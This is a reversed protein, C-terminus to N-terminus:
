GIPSAQEVRAGANDRLERTDLIATTELLDLAQEAAAYREADEIWDRAAAANPLQRIEAAASKVRGTQLFLRAREIRNVAAPSPADARRVVFM